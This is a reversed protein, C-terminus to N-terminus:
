SKTCRTYPVLFVQVMDKPSISTEDDFPHACIDIIRKHVKLLPDRVDPKDILRDHVVHAKVSWILEMDASLDYTDLVFIRSKKFFSSLILYRIGVSTMLKM